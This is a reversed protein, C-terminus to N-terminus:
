FAPNEKSIPDESKDVMTIVLPAVATQIRNAKVLEEIEAPIKEEDVLRKIFYPLFLEASHQDTFVEKSYYPFVFMQDLLQKQLKRTFINFNADINEIVPSAYFVVCQLLETPTREASQKNANIRRTIGNIQKEIETM